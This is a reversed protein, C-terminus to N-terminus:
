TLHWALSDRVEPVGVIWTVALMGYFLPFIRLFRRIYFRRIETRTSQLGASVVDRARLLIGTILFGSLVFFLQVGLFGTTLGLLIEGKPWFHHVMVGIVAIARLSDLQPMYRPAAAVPSHM